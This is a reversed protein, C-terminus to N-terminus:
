PPFALFRSISTLYSPWAWTAESLGEKIPIKMKIKCRHARDEGAQEESCNNGGAGSGVLAERSLSMLEELLAFNLLDLLFNFGAKPLEGITGCEPLRAHSKVQSGALGFKGGCLGVLDEL